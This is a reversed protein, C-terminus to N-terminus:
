KKRRKKTTRKKPEDKEFCDNMAEGINFLFLRFENEVDKWEVWDKKKLKIELKKQIEKRKKMSFINIYGTLIVIWFVIAYILNIPISIGTNMLSEMLEWLNYAYTTIYIGLVAGFIPAPVNFPFNFKWFIKTIITIVLITIALGLNNLFFTVTEIYVPNKIYDMLVFAITLLIVFIIFGVIESIIINSISKERM